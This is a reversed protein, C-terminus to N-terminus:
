EKEIREMMKKDGNLSESLIYQLDCTTYRLSAESDTHNYVPVKCYTNDSVTAVAENGDCKWHLDEERLRLPM